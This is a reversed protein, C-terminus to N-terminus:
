LKSVSEATKEACTSMDLGTFDPEARKQGNSGGLLTHRLTDSLRANGAALDLINTSALDPKRSISYTHDFNERLVSLSRHATCWSTQTDIM